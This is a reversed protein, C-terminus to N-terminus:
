RRASTVPHADVAPTGSPPQTSPRCRRQRLPVVQEDAEAMVRESLRTTEFQVRVTDEPRQPTRRVMPAEAQRRGGM